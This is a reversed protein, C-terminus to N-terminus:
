GIEEAEVKVHYGLKKLFIECEDWSLGFAKVDALGLRSVIEKIVMFDKDDFKNEMVANEAWDVLEALTIKHQLYAVMKDALTKKTIM